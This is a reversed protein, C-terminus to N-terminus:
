SVEFSQSPIEKSGLVSIDHLNRQWEEPDTQIPPPLADNPYGPSRMLMEERDASLHM